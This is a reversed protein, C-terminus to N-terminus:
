FIQMGCKLKCQSEESAVDSGGDDICSSDPSAFHKANVFDANDCDSQVCSNNSNDSYSNNLNHPENNCQIESLKNFGSFGGGGGLDKCTDLIRSKIPKSLINEITFSNTMRLNSGNPSSITTEM